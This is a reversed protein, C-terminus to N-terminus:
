AVFEFDGADITPVNQLFAFLVSAGAGNGDADFRLTGNDTDYLFTADGTSASPNGNAVLVATQGAVLGGGFVSADIQLTDVGSEFDTIRDREAANPATNFVITDAGTGTVIVDAGQDGILTDGGEGGELQDNGARGRILDDGGLGTLRNAGADGFLLDRGTASGVLNEIDVFTDGVAARGNTGSGDLFANAGTSDAYNVFDVDDGGDFLDTGGRARFGDNGDGGFLSDDGAVGDLTDGGDGGEIRNAASDGFLRDNFDSGILNEISIFTDRGSSLTSQAIGERNLLIALTAASADSFDATDVDAGGNLIDNAAGGQLTDDGDGGILTDRDLGGELRNAGGDGTLSDRGAGGTVNEFFVITDTGTETGTNQATTVNLDVTVAATATEFSVTDGRDNNAGGDLIDDGAGGIITDDGGLANVTDDGIGADLTDDGESLNFLENEPPNSEDATTISLRTEMGGMGDAVETRIIEADEGVIASFGSVDLATEDLTLAGGVILFTFAGINSFPDFFGFDLVIDDASLVADGTIELVDSQGQGFGFFDFEILGGSQDVAGDILASGVTGDGGVNIRGATDLDSTLTGGIIDLVGLEGLLTQDAEVEGGSVITLRGAGGDSLDYASNPGASSIALIDGAIFRSGAGTVMVEGSSGARGGVETTSFDSANVVVGGDEIRLFGISGDNRGVSIFGNTANQNAAGNNEGEVTIMSGAGSVLAYGYASVGSTSGEGLIFSPATDGGGDIDVVGGNEVTLRGEGLRGVIVSAGYYYPDGSDSSVNLRSGAGSVTVEGSSGQDQGLLVSADTGGVNVVGGDYIYAVGGGGGGDGRGLRLLAGEGDETDGIQTINFTSGVGSVELLGYGGDRGFDAFPRDTVGDVNELNVAGGNTVRITGESYALRGVTIGGQASRFDDGEFYGQLGYGANVNLASGAGDITVEGLGYDRGVNVLSAGAIGGNAINLYGTGREYAFLGDGIDVRDGGRGVTIRAGLGYAALFSGQGDVNVIGTSGDFQDNFERGISIQTYGNVNGDDDFLAQAGVLTAGNEINLVGYGGNTGVEIPTGFEGEPTLAVINVPNAGGSLTAEGRVEPFSSGSRFTNRAGVSVQEVLFEVPHNDGTITITGDGDPVYVDDVYEGGGNAAYVGNEGDFDIGADGTIAFDNENDGDDNGIIGLAKTNTLETAEPEGAVGTLEIGFLEDGEINADGALTVTITASTAGDVFTVQGTLADAIDDPEASFLGFSAATIEFDVTIEGSLSGSRFLDFSITNEDGVGGELAGVVLDDGIAAFGITAPEDENEIVGGIEANVIEYTAAGQPNSLAVTFGNDGEGADDAAVQVVIEAEREGAAFSVQGTPLAGGVFDDADAPADGAGIVEFDLTLSSSLDGARTVTYTITTADGPDGELVTQDFGAFGVTNAPATLVDLTLLTGGEIANESVAFTAGTPAGVINFDTGELTLEGEIFAFVGTNGAQFAGLGNLDLTFVDAALTADGSIQIVDVNGFSFGTFEVVIEGSTQTFDGDVDGVGIMQEGGLNTTGTSVVDARLIGGGLNLVGSDGFAAYDATVLGGDYIGLVGDGGVDFIQDLTDPDVDSGVSLREGALFRSNAGTVTVEGETGANGAIESAANATSNDLAGGNSIVLEGQSGGSRSISVFGSAAAGSDNVGTVQILSGAGDIIAYGTATSEVGVQFLPFPEAGGDITIVGGNRVALYGDGGRGVQFFAGETEVEPTSADTFVNIESGAGDVVVRATTGENRAIRIGGFDGDYTNVTVVGGSEVILESADSTPTGGLFNAGLDLTGSDGLVNLAGGNKVEVRGQGQRGIGLFAGFDYDDGTPGSQQVRFESGAGDISILGYAGSERGLSVYPNDTLGDVNSVTVRGGDSVYIRGDGGQRGVQMGSALGSFDQGNFSLNTGYESSLELLSGAGTVNVVGEGYQRGIFAGMTGVKGGNQITLTGQSPTNEPYGYDQGRGVTVRAGTGNALLETGAGDVVVEGAGGNRGINVNYSGGVAFGQDPDYYANNISTLRVGNELRLYGESGVGRGVQIVGASGDTDPDQVTIRVDDTSRTITLSGTSGGRGVYLETTEVIAAGGIDSINLTGDGNYGGAYIQSDDFGYSGTGVAPSTSIAVGGNVIFTDDLSVIIDAVGDGNLDEGGAIEVLNNTATMEILFGDTGDIDSVDIETAGSNTGYVVYATTTNYASIILDGREDGNLDGAAAIEAGLGAVANYTTITLGNSGDIQGSSLELGSFPDLSGDRGFFVTVRGGDNGDNGFDDPSSVAFDDFGDGNFDGLAVIDRGFNYDGNSGAISFGNTGDLAAVDIEGPLGTNSGFIIHAQGGTVQGFTEYDFYRAFNSSVAFDDFGDGNVDGVAAVDRGVQSFSQSPSSVVLGNPSGIAAIDVSAPPEGEGQDLGLDGIHDDTGFLIFAAGAAETRIETEQTEFNYYSVEIYSSANSIALDDFGDGNVDGLGAVQGRSFGQGTEPGSIVFGNAGDIDSPTILSAFGQDTGFIVYHTAQSPGDGYQPGESIIFDDIGDGNFDGIGAISYGMKDNENEGAIVFGQDYGLANVDISPPLGTDDGFLVFTQGVSYTYGYNDGQASAYPEPVAFDAIGDGNVDGIIEVSGVSGRIETGEVGDGVLQRKTVAFDVLVSATASAEGDSITYNFSDVFNDGLQGGPADIRVQDGGAFVVRLGNSLLVVDGIEVPTGDIETITLADLDPDFDVGFGNDAALSVVTPGSLELADNAATPADNAGGLEASGFLVVPASLGDYAYRRSFLAVDDFGDGNQDGIASAQGREDVLISVGESGSLDALDLSAANADSGFILYIAGFDDNDYGNRLASVSFDDFGDGNVDGVAAAYYGLSQFESDGLLAFGNTGDLDGMDLSAPLGADDGFVVFAGGIANFNDNDYGGARPATVLFDDVGDGNVDGIAEVSEGFQYFGGSISLATGEGPSRSALSITGGTADNVGFLVFAAGTTAYTAGDYGANPDGLLLDDIGDGNVDGVLSAADTIRLDAAGEITIIAATSPDIVGDDEGLLIYAEGNYGVSTDVYLIDDIGDGNFDFAGDIRTGFGTSELGDIAFGDAPDLSALDVLPDFGQDTGFLVYLNASPSYYTGGYDGTYSFQESGRDSIFLDDFGDGNVDGAASVFIDGNQFDNEFAAAIFGNSGNLSVLDLDDGPSVGNGFVIFTGGSASEDSYTGDNYIYRSLYRQTVAFDDLGDGNVDGVVTIADSRLYGNYSDTLTATFSGSIDSIFIGM